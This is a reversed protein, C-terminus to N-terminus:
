LSEGLIAGRHRFMYCNINAIFSTGRLATIPHYMLGFTYNSPEAVSYIFVLHKHHSAMDTRSTKLGRQPMIMNLTFKVRPLPLSPGSPSYLNKEVREKVYASSPPPREVCSGPQKLGTLSVRNGNYLYTSPPSWLRDPRTRFIESGCPNSERVV